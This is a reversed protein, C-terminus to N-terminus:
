NNIINKDTETSSVECLNCKTETGNTWSDLIVRDAFEKHCIAISCVMVEPVNVSAYGCTKVVDFTEEFTGNFPVFILIESGNDPANQVDVANSYITGNELVWSCTVTIQSSTKPTNTNTPLYDKISVYMGIQGFIVSYPLIFLAM